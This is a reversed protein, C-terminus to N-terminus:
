PTKKLSKPLYPKQAHRSNSYHKEHLKGRTQITCGITSIPTVLKVIAICCKQRAQKKM